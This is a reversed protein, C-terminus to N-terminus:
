HPEWPYSDTAVPVWYLEGSGRWPDLVLGSAFESGRATVIVSNHERFLEGPHAIGWHFEFHPLPLARLRALLDETWHWCLGRRKLKLNVLANHVIPPRTLRYQSALVYSERLVTQAVLRSEAPEADPSLDAVDHQLREVRSSFVEPRPEPQVACGIVLALPGLAWAAARTSM